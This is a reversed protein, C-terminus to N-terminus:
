YFAKYGTKKWIRQFMKAKGMIEQANRSMESVAMNDEQFLTVRYPM